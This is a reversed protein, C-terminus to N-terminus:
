RSRRLDEARCYNEVGPRPACTLASNVEGPSGIYTLKDVDFAVGPGKLAGEVYWSRGPIAVTLGDATVRKDVYNMAVLGAAGEMNQVVLGPRRSHVAGPAPAVVRATNDVGGGPAFGVIMALTKGSLFRRRHVEVAIITVCLIALRAAPRTWRQARM